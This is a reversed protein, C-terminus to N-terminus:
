LTLESLVSSLLAGLDDPAGKIMCHTSRLEASGDYGEGTSWVADELISADGNGSWALLTGDDAYVAIELAESGTRRLTEMLAKQVELSITLTLDHGKAIEKGLSPHARLVDDSLLEIGATGRLADDVDGIVPWTDQYDPYKRTEVSTLEIEGSLSLREIEENIAATEEADPIMPIMIFSEGGRIRTEISVAPETTYRSIVSAAYSAPTDSLSVSFGYDPAQIALLSGNRDYISGRVLLSPLAPDDYRPNKWQPTTYLSTLRVLTLLMLAIVTLYAALIGQKNGNQMM